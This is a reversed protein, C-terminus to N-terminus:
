RSPRGRTTNPKVTTSSRTTAISMRASGSRRACRSRATSSQGHGVTRRALGWAGGDYCTGTGEPRLGSWVLPYVHEGDGSFAILTGDRVSALMVLTTGAPIRDPRFSFVNQGDQPTPVVLGAPPPLPTDMRTDPTCTGPADHQVLVAHIGADTLVKNATPLESLDTVEVTVTGDGNVTVASAAPANDGASPVLVFAAVAAAGATALGVTRVPFRRRAAPAIATRMLAARARAMAADDAPPLDTRMRDLERLEDIM